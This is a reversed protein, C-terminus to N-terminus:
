ASYREMMVVLMSLAGDSLKTFNLALGGSECRVVVAKFPHKNTETKEKVTGEVKDGPALNGYYDTVLAGGLSWDRTQYSSGDFSIDLSPWLLRKNRRNERRRTM